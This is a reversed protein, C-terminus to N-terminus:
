RQRDRHFCFITHTKAFPEKTSFIAARSYSLGGYWM